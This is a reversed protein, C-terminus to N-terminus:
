KYGSTHVVKGAPSLSFTVSSAQFCFFITEATNDDKILIVESVSAFCAHSKESLSLLVCLFAPLLVCYTFLENGHCCRLCPTHAECRRTYFLVVDTNRNRFVCIDKAQVMFDSSLHWLISQYLNIMRFSNMLASIEAINFKVIIFLKKIDTFAMVEHVAFGMVIE